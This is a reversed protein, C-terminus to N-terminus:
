GRCGGFLYLRKNLEDMYGMPSRVPIPCPTHFPEIVLKDLNKDLYIYELTNYPNKELPLECGGIVLM